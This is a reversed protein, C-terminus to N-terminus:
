RIRTKLALRLIVQDSDEFATQSCHKYAKECMKYMGDFVFSKQLQRMCQVPSGHSVIQSHYYNVLDWQTEENPVVLRPDQYRPDVYYLLNDRRVYQRCM